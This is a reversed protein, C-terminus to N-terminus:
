FLLIRVGLSLLIDASGQSRVVPIQVGGEVLFKKAPIFQVAPSLSILTRSDFRTSGNFGLFINIQRPPYRQTLLPLGFTMNFIVHDTSGDTAVNYGVEGYLGLRTTIWGAM